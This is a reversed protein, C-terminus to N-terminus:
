CVVLADGGVLVKEVELNDNVVVVDAAGGVELRGVKTEGIVSAPVSTAAALAEALSAGLAHLNRIAEIMTLVSGALV